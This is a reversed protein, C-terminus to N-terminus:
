KRTLIRGEKADDSDNNKKMSMKKELKKKNMGEGIDEADDKKIGNM